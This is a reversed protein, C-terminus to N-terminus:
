RGFPATFINYRYDHEKKTKHYQEVAAEYAACEEATMTAKDHPLCFLELFTLSFKAKELRERQVDNEAMALARDFFAKAEDLHQCLDTLGHDPFDTQYTREVYNTRHEQTIGPLLPYVFIKDLAEKCICCRNATLAYEMDIYRRIEEWGAGYFAALFENIHRDYEEESMYPNWLLKGILYGRLEPFQCDCDFYNSSEYVHCAHCDAFIRANERLSVLNPFPALYAKWNTVYDWISMHSCMKHWGLVEPAIDRSNVKCNPDLLSHRFCAEYTCYRILM